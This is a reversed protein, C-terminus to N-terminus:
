LLKGTRWNSWECEDGGRLVAIQFVMSRYEERVTVSRYPHMKIIQHGRIEM